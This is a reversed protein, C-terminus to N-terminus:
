REYSFIFKSETGTLGQNSRSLIRLGYRYPSRGFAAIQIVILTAIERVKFGAWVVLQEVTVPLHAGGYRLDQWMRRSEVCLLSRVVM